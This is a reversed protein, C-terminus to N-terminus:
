QTRRPACYRYTEIILICSLASLTQISDSDISKVLGISSEAALLTLLIASLISSHASLKTVASEVSDFPGVRVLQLLLVFLEDSSQLLCVFM